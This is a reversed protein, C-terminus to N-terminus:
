IHGIVVQLLASYRPEVINPIGTRPCTPGQCYGEGYFGAINLKRGEEKAQKFHHSVCDICLWHVPETVAEIEQQFDLCDYCDYARTCYGRSVAGGNHSHLIPCFADAVGDNM